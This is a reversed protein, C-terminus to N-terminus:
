SANDIAIINGESDKFWAGKRGDPLTMVGNETKLGPFDYDEFVVGRSRLEDVAADFDAVRLGMATAENTGAFESEYLLFGTGKGTEYNLGAMDESAPELGLKEAYFTRARALDKAPVTPMFMADKFM